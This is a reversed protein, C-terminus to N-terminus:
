LLDETLVIESLVIKSISATKTTGTKKIDYYIERIDKVNGTLCYRDKM